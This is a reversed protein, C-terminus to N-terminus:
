QKPKQKKSGESKANAGEKLDPGAPAESDNGLFKRVPESNILDPLLFRRHKVAHALFIGGVFAVLLFTLIAIFGGCGSSQTYTATSYGGRAGPRMGPRMGPRAGRKPAPGPRAGSGPAPKSIGDPKPTEIHKRRAPAEKFQFVAPIDGFSLRDGEELKAEEVEVGNLKTGNTAGLDQVFYADGRRKISAHRSSVSPSPLVVSSEPHRGITIDSDLETEIETGDELTFIIRAM